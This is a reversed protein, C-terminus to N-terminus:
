AAQRRRRRGTTIPTVAANSPETDGKKDRDAKKLKAQREKQWEDVMIRLYQSIIYNAYDDRNYDQDDTDKDTVEDAIRDVDQDIDEDADNNKDADKAKDMEISQRIMEDWIEREAVTLTATLPVTVFQKKSKKGVIEDFNFM